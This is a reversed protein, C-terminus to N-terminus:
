KKRADLESLWALLALDARRGPALRTEQAWAAPCRVPGYVTEASDPRESELSSSAAAASATFIGYGWSGRIIDLDDGGVLGDGSADGSLLDGPPVARGWNMRIIDLDGSNVVGDWNLDAAIYPLVLPAIFADEAEGETGDGDGDMWNGATDSIAPGITIEYAEGNRLPRDLALRYEVASVPIIESVGITRQFIRCPGGEHSLLFIEESLEVETAYGADEFTGVLLPRSPDSVDLVALGALRAALIATTGDVEVDMVWDSATFSGLLVPTDSSVDLIVLGGDKDAVYLTDGDIEVDRAHGATDFHGVVAPADLNSIDVILVGTKANAVYARDGSLELDRAFDPTDIRSRLSPRTPDGVAIFAVGRPGLALAVTDGAVEVDLAGWTEYTGMLVPNAPDAVDYIELGKRYDAVYAVHDVVEVDYAASTTGIPKLYVPSTPNKLHFIGLGRDGLAAFLFDGFVCAAEVDAPPRVWTTPPLPATIRVDEPSFTTPDIARDFRIEVEYTDTATVSEIWPGALVGSLVRRPELSEFSLGRRSHAFVSPCHM